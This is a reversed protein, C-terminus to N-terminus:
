RRISPRFHQYSPLGPSELDSNSHGLSVDACDAESSSIALVAGLFGGLSGAEWALAGFEVGFSESVKSARHAFM